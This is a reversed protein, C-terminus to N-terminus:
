YYIVTPHMTVQKKSWYSAKIEDRHFIDRNRSFDQLILCEGVKLNEKCLNYMKSQYKQTFYHQIFTFNQGPEYIDDRILKTVCDEFTGRETELKRRFCKKGNKSTYEVNKWTHWIFEKRIDISNPVCSWIKPGWNKCHDCLNNVCNIDRFDYPGDALKACLLVKYLEYASKLGPINLKMLKLYINQCYVCLCSVLPTDTIFKINEPKLLYFKSYSITLNEDSIEELFLRHVVRVPYNLYRRPGKKQTIELVLILVLFIMEQM